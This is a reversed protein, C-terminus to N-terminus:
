LDIVAAMGASPVKTRDQIIRELRARDVLVTAEVVEAGMMDIRETEEAWLTPDDQVLEEDRAAFVAWSGDEFVGMGLRIAKMDAM